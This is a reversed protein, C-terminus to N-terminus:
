SLVSTEVLDEQSASEAWGLQSLVAELSGLVRVAPDQGKLDDWEGM